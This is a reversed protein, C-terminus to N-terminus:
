ERSAFYVHFGSSSPDYGPLAALADLFPETVALGQCKTLAAMAAYQEYPIPAPLQVMTM